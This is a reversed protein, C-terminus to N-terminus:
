ELRILRTPTCAWGVRVDHEESPLQEAVEDDHVVGVLRERPLGRLARDYFGGGHGLRTGDLAIAAAPVLVIDVAELVSGDARSPQRLGFPGPVLSDIGAYRAWELPESIGRTIPLIVEATRALADLVDTSGPEGATPVFAAIRRAPCERARELLLDAATQLDAATRRDRRERYEKRLARKRTGVDDASSM